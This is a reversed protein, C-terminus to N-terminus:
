TEKQFLKAAIDVADQTAYFQMTTDFKAHGMTKHIEIPTLKADLQRVFTRKGIDHSTATKGTDPNTIVGAREGIKAITRVVRKRTMNGGRGNPVPFVLGERGDPPTECCVDWFEPQVVQVRPKRSKHGRPALRIMPYGQVQELHVAAHLDWSLNLLETIRLNILALGRLLRDWYAADRPRVKPVFLLIREQEEGTIGRSRPVEEFSVAIHPTRSLLDSRVAWNLIARVRTSYTAVTNPSKGSERLSQQWELLRTSTIQTLRPGRFFQEISWKITAWNQIYDSSKNALHLREYRECLQLWTLDELSLGQEIQEALEAARQQAERKIHTGLTKWRTTNTIPEVWRALYHRRNSPRYVTMKLRAFRDARTM